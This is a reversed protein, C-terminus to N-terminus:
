TTAYTESVEIACKCSEIYDQLKQKPSWGLAKTKETMVEASMRNGRREPFMQIEGGFMCAVDLITYFEESGIGFEDGYGYEGVLTLGEIIISIPLIERKLESTSRPKLISNRTRLYETIEQDDIPSINQHLMAIKQPDIDLAVVEHYQALLMSNALGVYGLGVVAIKM